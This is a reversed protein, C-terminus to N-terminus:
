SGVVEWQGAMIDVTLGDAKPDNNDACVHLSGRKEAEQPRYIQTAKHSEKYSYCPSLSKPMCADYRFRPSGKQAFLGTHIAM